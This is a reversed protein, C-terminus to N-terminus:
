NLRLTDPHAVRWPLRVAYDPLSVCTFDGTRTVINVLGYILYDGVMYKDRVTEIKQVLEPDLNAILSANNIVVGDIMLLPPTSYISFDVPDAITIDLESKRNKLFVGPILEFFVEQMVPLKIYNDMLLSIDPKGYFRGPEATVTQQKQLDGISASNYIKGVQYNVSWQGAYVTQDM